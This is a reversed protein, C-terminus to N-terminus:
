MLNNELDAYKGSRVETMIQLAIELQNRVTLEGSQFSYACIGSMLSLQRLYLSDKQRRAGLFKYLVIVSAAAYQYLCRKFLTSWHLSVKFELVGNEMKLELPFIIEPRKDRKAILKIGREQGIQRIDFPHNSVSILFQELRKAPVNGGMNALQRLAMCCYLLQEASLQDEPLSDTKLEIHVQDISYFSIRAKLSYDKTM